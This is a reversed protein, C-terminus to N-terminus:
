SPCGGVQVHTSHTLLFRAPMHGCRDNPWSPLFEALEM